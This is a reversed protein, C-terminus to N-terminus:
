QVPVHPGIHKAPRYVWIQIIQCQYDLDFGVAHGPIALDPVPDLLSGVIDSGRRRINIPGGYRRAKEPQDPHIEFRMLTIADCSHDLQRLMKPHAAGM